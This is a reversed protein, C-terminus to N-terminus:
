RKALASSASASIWRMGVSQLMPILDDNVRWSRGDVSALANVYFTGGSFTASRAISRSNGDPDTVCASLLSCDLDM